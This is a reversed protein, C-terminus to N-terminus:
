YRIIFNEKTLEKKFFVIGMFFIDISLTVDPHQKIYNWAEEMGESWHIDDFIIISDNNINPLLQEFYRITPEKSHNGDIFLLDFNQKNKLIDSLKDDFAGIVLEINGANIKNFNKQAVSSINPCGELTVIRAEPNAIAMYSTTIGFSTGLELINKPKLYRVIRYILQVHKKYKSSTKAIDCIRREPNNFYTSGAGLDNVKIYHKDTLLQNRIEEVVSYDSYAKKDRFVKTVLDFLFPPHVEYRTKATLLYDFYKLIFRVKQVYCFYTIKM